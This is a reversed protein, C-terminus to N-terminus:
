TFIRSLTAFLSPLIETSDLHSYGFRRDQRLATLQRGFRVAFDRRLSAGEHSAAYEDDLEDLTVDRNNWLYELIQGLIERTPSENKVEICVLAGDKDLALLDEM